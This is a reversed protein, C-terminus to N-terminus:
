FSTTVFIKVSKMINHTSVCFSNKTCIISLYQSYNIVFFEFMQKMMLRHYENDEDGDRIIRIEKLEMSVDVKQKRLGM